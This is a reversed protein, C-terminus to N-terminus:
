CGEKNLDGVLQHLLIPRGTEAARKQADELSAEWRVGANYTKWAAPAAEKPEQPIGGALALWAATLITGM